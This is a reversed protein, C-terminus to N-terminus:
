EFVNVVKDEFVEDAENSSISQTQINNKWNCHDFRNLSFKSEYLIMEMDEIKSHLEM